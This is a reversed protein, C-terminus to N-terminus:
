PSASGSTACRAGAGRNGFDRRHRGHRVRAAVAMRRDGRHRPLQSLAHRHRGPPRIGRAQRAVRGGPGGGADATARRTRPDPHPRGHSRRGSRAGPGPVGLEGGGHQSAVGCRDNRRCLPLADVDPRRGFVRLGRCHRGSAGGLLDDRARSRSGRGDGARRGASRQRQSDPGPVLRGSSAPGVTRSPCSPIPIPACSSRPATSRSTSASASHAGIAPAARLARPGEIRARDGRSRRHPVRRRGPDGALVPPHARPRGSRRHLEGSRRRPRARRGRPAGRARRCRSRPRAAGGRDPTRRGLRRTRKVVTGLLAELSTVRTEAIADHVGNYAWYGLGILLAGTLVTAANRWTETEVLDAIINPIANAPAEADGVGIDLIPAREPSRESQPKADGNM